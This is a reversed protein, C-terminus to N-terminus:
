YRCNAAERCGAQFWQQTRLHFFNHFNTLM